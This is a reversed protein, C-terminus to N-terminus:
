ESCVTKERSWLLTCAVGPSTYPTMESTKQDIVSITETFYTVIMMRASLWPSPPSSSRPWAPRSRRDAPAPPGAARNSRSPM